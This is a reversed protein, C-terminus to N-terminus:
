GHNIFYYTNNTKNSLSSNERMFQRVILEVVRRPVEEAVPSLIALGGEGYFVDRLSDLKYEFELAELLCETAAVPM